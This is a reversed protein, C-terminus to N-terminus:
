LRLTREVIGMEYSQQRLYPLDAAALGDGQCMPPMIPTHQMELHHFDARPCGAHLKAMIVRASPQMQGAKHHADVVIQAQCFHHSCLAAGRKGTAVGVGIGGHVLRIFFALKVVKETLAQVV